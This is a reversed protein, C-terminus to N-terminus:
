CNRARVPSVRNPIWFPKVPAGILTLPTRLRNAADNYFQNKMVSMEHSVNERQRQNYTYFAAGVIGILLLLMLFKGWISEWFTPRVEIPLEAVYKSWVGHSNTARVKLVYDGHSIRNFGIVNSTGNSIWEGPATYGDIRYLYQTQYKREYDLSAFTITLNRKNAPIM